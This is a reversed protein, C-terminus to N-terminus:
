KTQSPSEGPSAACEETLTLAGDNRKRKKVGRKSRIEGGLGIVFTKGGSMLCAPGSSPAAKTQKEELEM